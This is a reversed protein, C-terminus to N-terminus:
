IPVLRDEGIIYVKLIHDRINKIETYNAKKATLCLSKFNQQKRYEFLAKGEDFLISTNEGPAHIFVYDSQDLFARTEELIDEINEQHKVENARRIQSGISSISKGKDKTLQRKGAKKRIVYKHDSKHTVEKNQDFVGISFNGGACLVFTMFKASAAKILSDICNTEKKDEMEEDVKKMKETLLKHRLFMGNQVGKFKEISYENHIDSYKEHDAEPIDEGDRRRQNVKYFFELTDDVLSRHVCLFKKIEACHYIFWSYEKLLKEPVIGDLEKVLKLNYEETPNLLVWKYKAIIKPDLWFISGKVVNGEIKVEARKVFTNVIADFSGPDVASSKEVHITKRIKKNVLALSEREEPTLYELLIKRSKKQKLFLKTLSDAM